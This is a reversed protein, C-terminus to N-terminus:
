RAPSESENAAEDDISAQQTSANLALPFLWLASGDENFGFKGTLCIKQGNAGKKSIQEGLERARQTAAAALKNREIRANREAEDTPWPKLSDEDAAYFSLTFAGNIGPVKFHQVLFSSPGHSGMVTQGTNFITGCLTGENSAAFAPLALLSTFLLAVLTLQTKM